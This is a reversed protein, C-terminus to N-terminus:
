KIFGEAYTSKRAKKGLNEGVKKMLTLKTLKIAPTMFTSQLVATVSNVNFFYKTRVKM